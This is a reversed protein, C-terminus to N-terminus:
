QDETPITMFIKVLVDLAEAADPGEAEVIVQNGPEVGLTLLNLPSRGNVREGGPKQVWVQAQFGLAAQVFAQIPRMHLGQPNTITITRRLVEGNM